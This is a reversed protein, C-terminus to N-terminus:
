SKVVRPFKAVSPMTRLLEEETRLDLVPKVGTRERVAESLRGELADVDATRGPDYGVRLRLEDVERRARVIQFVGAGTEPQDEVAQWIDRLVVSRGRVLTEDGRRGAVWMRAHTRGCGCRDRSLRVLDESRYRILPAARNDLDTAVLEGLDGETVDDWENGKVDVCEAFVTDEWLHFGDHERCEWATGTDAASTYEYVDIGWDSVIRERMKRSLPQGACSAGKLSSFAEKLDTKEALHELEVMQPYMMQLYAPRYERLAEVVDAMRGMWTDVEIVVAGLAQYGPDMLNRFTGPPSLVRDGPRLGLEWLDRVQATVLPPAGEWIEAFFEPDGTTGSSSSVSTLEDPRVCLLGGFPDGTRARHARIMDKTIFPVRTRFADLSRIDRPHVGHADWLERYFASHGYAYEVLELIREEQLAGLQERPMTEVQPEFYRDGVM